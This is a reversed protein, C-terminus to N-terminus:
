LPADAQRMFVLDVQWRSRDCLSKDRAALLMPDVPQVAGGILRHPRLGASALIELLEAPQSGCAELFSPSYELLLARTRRLTQAAGRLAQVEYGEVDIKLFHIPGAFPELIRDLPEVEIEEFSTDAAQSPRVSNAGPNSREHRYLRIRSTEEGVGKQVAVMRGFGAGDINHRLLRHNESDPEIAVVTSMPALRASLLTYWGFNAGVDVVLGERTGALWSVLWNSNTPEYARYKALQRAFLSRAPVTVQYDAVAFTSDRRFM